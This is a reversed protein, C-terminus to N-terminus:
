PRSIARTSLSGVLRKRASATSALRPEPPPTMTLLTVLAKSHALPTAGPTAPDETTVRTAIEAPSELLCANANANVSGVTTVVSVEIGSVREGKANLVEILLAAPVTGDAAATLSTASAKLTTAPATQTWAVQGADEGLNDDQANDFLQVDVVVAGIGGQGDVRVVITADAKARDCSSGNVCVLSQGGGSNFRATGTSVPNITFIAFGTNSTLDTNDTVTIDVSGAASIESADVTVSVAAAAAEEAPAAVLVALAVALSALVAAAYGTFRTISSM